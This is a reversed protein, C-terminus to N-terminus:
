MSPTMLSEPRIIVALADVAIEEALRLNSLIAGLLLILAIPKRITVTVASMVLTDSLSIYTSIDM